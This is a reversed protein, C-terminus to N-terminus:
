LLRAVEQLGIMAAIGGFLLVVALIVVIYLNTSRKPASRTRGKSRPEGPPGASAISTRRAARQAKGRWEDGNGAIRKMRTFVVNYSSRNTTEDYNEEVVRVGSHRGTAGLREAESLALDRDDYYSDIEWKGGKYTQLEFSSM